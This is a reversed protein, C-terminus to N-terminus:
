WPIQPRSLGGRIGRRVATEVLLQGRPHSFDILGIIIVGRYAVWWQALEYDRRCDEWPYDSVGNFNLAEWFFRVLEMESEVASDNLNPRLFYAVDIMPNFLNVTQFDILIPDSGDDRFFLNDLRFDGHILTPHRNCAHLM